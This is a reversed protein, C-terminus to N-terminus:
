KSPSKSYEFKITARSLKLNVNQFKPSFAFFKGFSTQIM